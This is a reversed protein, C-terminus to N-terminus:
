PIGLAAKLREDIRLMMAPSLRGIVRQVDSQPVTHLRECRVASNTLLGSAAGDATSLDLLLQHPQHANSLTSTIAAIVTERIMGNLRDSQVVLAPRLKAGPTGVFPVQVLVVDGRTM